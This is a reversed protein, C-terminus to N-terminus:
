RETFLKLFIAMKELKNLFFVNLKKVFKGEFDELSHFSSHIICKGTTESFIDDSFFTSSLCASLRTM